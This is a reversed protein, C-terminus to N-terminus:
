KKIQYIEQIKFITINWNISPCYNCEYAHNYNRRHKGYTKVHYIFDNVINWDGKKIPPITIIIKFLAM